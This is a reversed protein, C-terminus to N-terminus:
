VQYAATIRPMHGPGFLGPFRPSRDNPPGGLHILGLPAKVQTWGRLGLNLDAQSAAPRDAPGGRINMAGYSQGNIPGCSVAAVAPAAPPAVRDGRGCIAIRIM